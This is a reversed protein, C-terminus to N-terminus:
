PKLRYSHDTIWVVRDGMDEPPKSVAVLTGFVVRVYSGALLPGPASITGDWSAGPELIRPLFTQVGRRALQDQAYAERRAKTRVVYWQLSDHM